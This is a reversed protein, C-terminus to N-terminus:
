KDKKQQNQENVNKWKIKYVHDNATKRTALYNKWRHEKDKNSNEDRRDAM